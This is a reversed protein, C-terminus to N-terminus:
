FGGKDLEKLFRSFTWVEVGSEHLFDHDGLYILIRRKIGELEDIAKLGTFHEPRLRETAKVKIAFFSSRHKILFDVEVGQSGTVAWYYMEDLPILKLQGYSRLIQAVLGELLARRDESSPEHLEQKM